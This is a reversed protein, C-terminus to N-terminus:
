AEIPPTPPVAHRINDLEALWQDWDIDSWAGVVSLAAQIDVDSVSAATEEDIGYRVVRQGEADLPVATLTASDSATLSPPQRERTM